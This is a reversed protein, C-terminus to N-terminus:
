FFTDQMLETSSKFDNSPAQHGRDFGSGAYDTNRGRATGGPLHTEEAFTNGPRSNRGKAIKRTLHEIVWDPTGNKSSHGLIYAKHCVHVPNEDTDSESEPLGIAEWVRGCSEPDNEPDQACAPLSLLLALLLSLITLAYRGPALRAAM